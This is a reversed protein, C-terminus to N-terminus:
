DPYEDSGLVTIFVQLDIFDRPHLGPIDKRITAAFDLM